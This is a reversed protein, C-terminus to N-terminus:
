RSRTKIPPAIEACWMAGRVSFAVGRITAKEAANLASLVTEVERGRLPSAGASLCRVAHEILARQFYRPLNAGDIIFERRGDTVHEAVIRAMMWTLADDADQLATASQALRAPDLEPTGAILARMRSRDYAVDRNSPDDVAVLGADKVVKELAGRRWGLLPRIIPLHGCWRTIPRIGALGSLGAGRNARMLLTEAQDDLHHATAIAALERAKAWAMLADYRAARANAQTGDGGKKVAVTLIQHPVSLSECLRAVMDAEARSEPRLQHDVTAAAIRDPWARHALLLLALSDPGGSVALGLQAEEDLLDSFPWVALAEAVRRVDAGDITM